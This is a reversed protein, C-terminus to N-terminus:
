ADVILFYDLADAGELLWTIGAEVCMRPLYSNGPVWNLLAVPLMLAVLGDFGLPLCEELIGDVNDLGLRGLVHEFECKSTLAGVHLRNSTGNEECTKNIGQRLYFKPREYGHM